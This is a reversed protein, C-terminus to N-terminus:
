KREEVAAKALGAAEELARAFGRLDAEDVFGQAVALLARAAEKEADNM